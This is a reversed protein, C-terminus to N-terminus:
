RAPTREAIVARPERVMYFSKGSTADYERSMIAGGLKRLVEEAIYYEAPNYGNFALWITNTDKRDWFNCVSEVAAFWADNIPRTM